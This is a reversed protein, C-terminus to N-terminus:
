ILEKISTGNSRVTTAVPFASPAGRGVRRIDREDYRLLGAPGSSEARVSCGHRRGQGPTRLGRSGPIGKTFLSKPM